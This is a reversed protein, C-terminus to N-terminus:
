HGIPNRIGCHRGLQYESRNLHGGPNGPNSRM